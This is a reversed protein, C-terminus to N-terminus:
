EEIPTFKKCAPRSRRVPLNSLGSERITRIGCFGSMMGFNPRYCACAGCEKGAGRSIIKMRGEKYALLMEHMHERPIEFQQSILGVIDITKEADICKWVDQARYWADGDHVPMYEYELEGLETMDDADILRM